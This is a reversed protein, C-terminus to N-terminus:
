PQCPTMRAHTRTHPTHAAAARAKEGNKRGPDGALQPAARHARARRLWTLSCGFARCMRLIAVAPAVL